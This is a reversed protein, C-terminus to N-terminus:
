ASVGEPLSERRDDARTAIGRDGDRYVVVQRLCEEIERIADAIEVRVPPYLEERIRITAELVDSLAQGLRDRRRLLSELERRSRAEKRLVGLYVDQKAPPLKKVDVRGRALRSKLEAIRKLNDEHVGIIERIRELRRGTLFDRGAATVTYTGFDSGVSRAEIGRLASVRGGVIAGREASVVVRANSTVESYTIARAVIVEGLAEIEADAVHRAAVRGDAVIRGQKKGVVGGGVFVDGASRVESRECNGAIMVEDADVQQGSLNGLVVVLGRFKVPPSDPGWSREILFLPMIELRRGDLILQGPSVTRIEGSGRRRVELGAGLEVELERAGAAPIESGCVSRGPLGQRPPRYRGVVEGERLERLSGPVNVRLWGTDLRLESKIIHPVSIDLQARLTEGPASGEAAVVRYAVDGRSRVEDVAARVRAEQLGETVRLADLERFCEEAALQAGGRRPPYVTLLCRLGDEVLEADCFADGGSEGGGAAFHDRLAGAAARAEEALDALTDPEGAVRELEACLGGPASPDAAGARRLAAAARDVLRALDEPPKL